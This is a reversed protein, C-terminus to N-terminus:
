GFIETPSPHTVIFSDDSSPQNHLYRQKQHVSASGIDLALHPLQRRRTKQKHNPTAAPAPVPEDDDEPWAGPITQQAVDVTVASFRPRLNKQHNLPTSTNKVQAAPKPTFASADIIQSPSIHRVILIEDESRQEGFNGGPTSGHYTRSVFAPKKSKFLRRFGM